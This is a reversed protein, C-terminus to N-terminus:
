GVWKEMQALVSHGHTALNEPQQYAINGNADIYENMIRGTADIYTSGVRSVLTNYEGGKDPSDPNGPQLPIYWSGWAVRVVGPMIRETLRAYCLIQGTDNFIRVIDKEKIGRANADAPNMEAPEYGKYKYIDQLFPATNFKTHDRWKSHEANIQLPYKKALPSWRAHPSVLYKPVDGIVTSHEGFFDTLMKSQFEIKGSPTNLGSKTDKIESGPKDYFWRMKNVEKYDSPFPPSYYGKVRFQEYPLAKAADSSNYIKRLWDEESNGDTFKDKLGLREMIGAYIDLDSKREFQPEILKHWLIINYSPCTSEGIDTREPPLCCPLVIDAWRVESEFNPATIVMTEIKPSKLMRAYGPCDNGCMGGGGGGGNRIIMHVESNGPMPYERETYLSTGPKYLSADILPNGRWKLTPKTKFDTLFAEPLCQADIQQRVPNAPAKNAPSVLSEMVQLGTFGVNLVIPEATSKISGHWLPPVGPKGVGQMAQLVCMMRCWEHGFFSRNIGSDLCMLSTRKSGWERALATITAAPVGTIKSAWDPTRDIMGDPGDKKGLVYDSFKDFGVSHTAVFDKDYTGEKIWVNAIALALAVDTGPVVPIWQDCYVAGTDNLVPNIHILKIGLEKMWFRWIASTHAGYPDENCDPTTGWFIGLKSSQMMEAFVDDYEAEGHNWNFGWVFSGAYDWHQWTGSLGTRSTFGGLFPTFRSFPTTHHLYGGTFHTCSWAMRGSPGYKEKVRTIEKAVTDFAENWTIRVFEGKGRNSVDGGGGPVYGVRKMPYKNISPDYVRSKLAMEQPGTQARREARFTRGGATFTWVNSKAEEETLDFPECWAIKGARVHVKIPTGRAASHGTSATIFVQDEFYDKAIVSETKTVVQPPITSRLLEDAGYGAGMGVVGAVALGATWKLMSRRSVKKEIISEEKKKESLERSM